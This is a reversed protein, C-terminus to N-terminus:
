ERGEKKVETAVCMGVGHHCRQTKKLNFIRGEAVGGGDQCTMAKDEKKGANGRVLGRASDWVKETTFGAL